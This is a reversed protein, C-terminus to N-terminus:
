VEVGRERLVLCLLLEATIRLKLQGAFLDFRVALALLEIGGHFVGCAVEKGRCLLGNM